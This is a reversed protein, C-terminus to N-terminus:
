VMKLFRKRADDNNLYYEIKRKLELNDSFFEAEEEENFLKLHEDTREALMFGGCAPIEMTRTTQLDRNVKRLFALNIKLQVFLKATSKM